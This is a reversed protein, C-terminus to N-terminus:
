LESRRGLNQWYLSIQGGFNFLITRKNDFDWLLKVKDMGVVSYANHITVGNLALSTM